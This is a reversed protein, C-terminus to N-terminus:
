LRILSYNRVVLPLLLALLPSSFDHSPGWTHEGFKLANAIEKVTDIDAHGEPLVTPNRSEEILAQIRQDKKMNKIAERALYKRQKEMHENLISM